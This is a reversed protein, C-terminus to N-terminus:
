CLVTKRNYIIAGQLELLNLVAVAVRQKETPSPDDCPVYGPIFGPEMEKSTSDKEGMCKLQM